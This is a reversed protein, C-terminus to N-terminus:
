LDKQKIRRYKSKAGDFYLKTRGGQVDRSSDVIVWTFPSLLPESAVGEDDEFGGEDEDLFEENLDEGKKTHVGKAHDRHLIIVQDADAHIAGTERFDNATMQKGGEIKKPHVIVM